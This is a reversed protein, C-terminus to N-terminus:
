QRLYSMGRVAEPRYVQAIAVPDGPSTLTYAATQRVREYWVALPSLGEQRECADLVGMGRHAALAADLREFFPVLAVDALGMREGGLDPRDALAGSLFRLEALWEAEHDDGYCLFRFGAPLVRADARAVLARQAARGLPDPPLLSHECAPFAEELYVRQDRHSECVCGGEHLLAPVRGLPSM